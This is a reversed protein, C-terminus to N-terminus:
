ATLPRLSLRGPCCRPFRGEVAAAALAQAITDAQALRAKRQGAAIDYAIDPHLMTTEGPRRAGTEAGNVLQSQEAAGFEDGHPSEPEIRRM